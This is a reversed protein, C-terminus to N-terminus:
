CSCLRTYLSRSFVQLRTDDEANESVETLDNGQSMTQYIEEFINELMYLHYQVLCSFLFITKQIRSRFLKENLSDTGSHSMLFFLFLFECIRFTICLTYMHGRMPCVEANVDSELGIGSQPMCCPTSFSNFKYHMCLCAFVFKHLHKTWEM